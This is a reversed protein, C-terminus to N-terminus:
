RPTAPTKQAAPAGALGVAAVGALPAVPLNDLPGSKPGAKPASGFNLASVATALTAVRVLGM